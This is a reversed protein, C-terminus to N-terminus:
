AVMEKRKRESAAQMWGALQQEEPTRNAKCTTDWAKKVKAKHKKRCEDGCVKQVARPTMFTEGCVVCTKEMKEVSRHQRGYSAKRQCDPSCFRQLKNRYTPTFPERCYECDQEAPRPRLEGNDVTRIGTSTYIRGHKFTLATECLHCVTAGTENPTFQFGCTSCVTYTM